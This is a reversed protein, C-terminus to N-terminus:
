RIQALITKDKIKKDAALLFAKSLIVALIGDGEFPLFLGKTKTDKGRNAVICLYQDNPEMLINGSGLHIKYTRIDGRVVLFKEGLTCRDAINLRPILGALVARRSKASANLDGFSSRHWYDRHTDLGQDHWEPDNGVSCVGVFLDVDRMLETFVRPPVAELAMPQREEEQYFRVQDTAVYLFVGTDGTEADVGEVWFEVRMAPEKLEITPTNASDWNGQLTYRWGRVDCLAKFQHQKILHAAFRNSYRETDLEAPTIVYVERFAQKLTIEHRFLWQRWAGVESAESDVPHWLRVETKEAPANLHLEVPQDEVTVLNDSAPDAFGLLRDGVRWILRRAYFGVLPHDVYFKRWDAFPIPRDELFLREIRRRQGLMLGKLDKATKKFARLEAAHDSKVVAPVSKQPSGDPKLWSIKTATASTITLVGTFEGFAQELRGIDSLGGDPVSMEELQARTVGAAEASAALAKELQKRTSAHKVVTQLRSLQGMADVTPMRSLANVCATGTKACRPGIGPIKKYCREAAGGLPIALGPADACMWLLGRLLDTHDSDLLTSNDTPYGKFKVSRKGAVGIAEIISRLSAEFAPFDDSLAKAKKLYTKTPKSGRASDALEVLANLKAQEAPELAARVKFFTTTWSDVPKRIFRDDVPVKGLVVDLRMLQERFPKTLMPTRGIDQRFAQVANDLEASVEGRKYCAEIWDVLPVIPVYETVRYANPLENLIGIMSEDSVPTLDKLLRGALAHRAEAMTWGKVWTLELLVLVLISSRTAEAADLIAQGAESQGVKSASSAADKASVFAELM